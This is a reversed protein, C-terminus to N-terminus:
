STGTIRDYLDEIYNWMEHFIDTPQVDPKPQPTPSPAPKIFVNYAAMARIAYMKRSSLAPVGAREDKKEWVDTAEKLTTTAKLAFLATKEITKSEAVLWKYNATDSKPDLKEAFCFNLFNSKREGDWQSWGIAPGGIQHFFQFGGTEHGINGMIGAAQFDTIGLDRMLGVMIGPAKQEFLQM